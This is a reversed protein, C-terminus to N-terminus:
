RGEIGGLNMHAIRDLEQKTFHYRVLEGLEQRVDERSLGSEILAQKEAKFTQYRSDWDQIGYQAGEYKERLAAQRQQRDEDSLSEDQAMTMSEYMYRTSAREASFLKDAVERGLYMEQLAEQEDLMVAHDSSGGSSTMLAYMERKANLYDSFNGVIAAAEEGAQQPLGTRIIRQLESLSGPDLELLGSQFLENLGRLADSDLAIDGYQDLKIQKLGEHIQEVNFQVGAQREQHTTAAAEDHKEAQAPQQEFRKWEWVDELTRTQADAQAEPYETDQEGYSAQSSAETNHTENGVVLWAAISLVGVGALVMLTQRTAKKFKM